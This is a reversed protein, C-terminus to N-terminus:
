YNAVGTAQIKVSGDPQLILTINKVVPYIPCDPGGFYGIDSQSGDPDLLSPNGKDWCPSGQSIHLDYSSIFQPDSDFCGQNGDTACFSGCSYSLFLRGYSYSCLNPSPDGRYGYNGNNRSICNSVYIKANSETFIVYSGNSLITCNNVYSNGQSSYIGYRSCGQIVCNKITGGSISIGNGGTSSIRFWKIEGISIMVVPDYNGVINTTEYGSGMLVVNKNITVQEFYQGPLVKITDGAVAATLASSISIFQGSGNIDVKIIRASLVTAVSLFVTIFLTIKKM